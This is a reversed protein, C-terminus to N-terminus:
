SCGAPALYNEFEEWQKLCCAGELLGGVDLFFQQLPQLVCSLGEFVSFTNERINQFHEMFIYDQVLPEFSYRLYFHSAFAKNLALCLCLKLFYLERSSFVTFQIVCVTHM